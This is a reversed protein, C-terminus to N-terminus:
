IFELDIRQILAIFYLTCNRSLAPLTLVSLSVASQREMITKYCAEMPHYTERYKSENEQMYLMGAHCHMAINYPTPLIEVPFEFKQGRVLCGVFACSSM